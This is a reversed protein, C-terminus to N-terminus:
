AANGSLEELQTKVAEEITERLRENVTENTRKILANDNFHNLSKVQTTM